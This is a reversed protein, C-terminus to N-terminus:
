LRFQDTVKRLDQVITDCFPYQSLEEQWAFLENLDKIATLNEPHERVSRVLDNTASWMLHLFKHPCNFEGQRDQRKDYLKNRMCYRAVELIKKTAEPLPISAMYGLSQELMYHEGFSAEHSDDVKELRSLREEVADGLVSLTEQPGIKNQHMLLYAYSGDCHPWVQEQKGTGVKRAFEVLEKKTFAETKVGFTNDLSEAWFLRRKGDFIPQEGDPFQAVSAALTESERITLERTRTEAFLHRAEQWRHNDLSNIMSVTMGEVEGRLRKYSELKIPSPQLLFPRSYHSHLVKSGKKDLGVYSAIRVQEGPELQKGDLNELVGGRYELNDAWNGITAKRGDEGELTLFSYKTKTGFETDMEKVELSFVKGESIVRAGRPLHQLQEDTPNIPPVIIEPELDAHYEHIDSIQFKTQKLGEVKLVCGLPVGKYRELVRKTEGSLNLPYFRDAMRGDQDDAVLVQNADEDSEIFAPVIVREGPNFVHGPRDFRDRWDSLPGKADAMLRPEEGFDYSRGLNIISVGTREAVSNIVEDVSSGPIDLKYGTGQEGGLVSLVKSM